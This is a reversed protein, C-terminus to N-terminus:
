IFYFCIKIIKYFSVFYNNTGSAGQKVAIRVKTQNNVVNTFPKTQKAPIPTGQELIWGM